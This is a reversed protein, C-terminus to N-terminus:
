SFIKRLLIFNIMIVCILAILGSIYYNGFYSFFFKNLSINLFYLIVYNFFFLFSKRLSINKKFVFKGYSFLNFISGLIHAVLTALYMGIGMFILLSYCLYGFATNVVGACVFRLELNFKNKIYEVIKM